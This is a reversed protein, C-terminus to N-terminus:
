AWSIRRAAWVVKGHSLTRSGWRDSLMEVIELGRGHEDESTARRRRPRQTSSDSVELVAERDSRRVRLEIPPSAYTLANTVLESVMLVLETRPQDPVQWERLQRDTLHRAARIDSLDSTLAMRVVDARPRQVKVVALAVDDHADAVMQDVLEEPLHTLPRDRHEVLVRELQDLRTALDLGRQEVLGDTYLALLSGPTLTVQRDEAALFGAGLPPGNVSLRTVGGDPAVLLPPLNGANAYGLSGDAADHIGYVCTVIGDPVLDQVIGDLNELVENPPLDLRAFARVAAKIQGMVAAARVGRGMVDGVVFATRGGGLDIVDYWDGGVQTGAVGPRYFTAIDLSDVETAVEPLLSHQLEDAIARERYAARRAAEASIMQRQLLREQTIDQLSGRLVRGGDADPEVVEGRVSLVREEGSPLTVVTEYALHEGVQASRLRAMAQDVDERHVFTAILSRVDLHAVEEETLGLLEGFTRSGDVRDEELHVEWSGFGAIRQAQDVLEQSHELSDRVSALRDLELNVRVRALLERASFPKVLYDDAGAELGEITGEEGARASLMIVPIAALEPQQQMRALLGFGDLRPMMVDTIVLDVQEKGLRELADLGDVATLVRYADALVDAVYRRMDANDDVVMVTAHAGDVGAAEEVTPGELWGLAEDVLAAARTSAVSGLAAGSTRQDGMAVSPAPLHEFGRPIRVSFTSGEGVASEVDVEGGHLEALQAVLALGIGSGEYSRSAAGRVRHFREFLHSLEDAPIGTGTDIVRLVVHTPEKELRVRVGGELTFKFANSLLNLVIKAWQERDVYAEVEADGELTLTLGATEMAEQFLSVLQATYDRLDTLEFNAEREHQADLRSFDLLTNVLRLMRSGSRAIVDLRRRQAEPLPNDTDALADEAPGLLLTLPTRLEHSVNALFDSKAQDLKALADSREKEHEMARADTIAASFHAAILESFEYFTKDVPRHRNAGFVLFGYPAPSLPRPIPVIVAKEPPMQWAGTPLGPILEDIKDVVVEEGALLRDAPWIARPDGPVLRRPAAIHGPEIGATGTLVAEGHEDFLYVAVWPLSENNLALHACGARVADVVSDATAVRIGLHRLTGMRRQNVIEDTVEAVVCLMGRIVGDDDTVPSYSFTHYTEEVYGSRKLFLRLAEEWTAEGTAIVSEIRPGIESWIESWVERAPKGLAWPYKAGLTDRRYADNCFFTLEDGWAMWMSFKSKLMLQLANGLALPWTSPDGLPTADWDVDLLDRGVPGCAALTEKQM